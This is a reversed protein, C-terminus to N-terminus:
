PLDNDSYGIEKWTGLGDSIVELVDNVSITRSSAGLELGSGPFSDNDQLSINCAAATSTLVLRQGAPVAITSISPIGYSIMSVVATSTSGCINVFSNAASIIASGVLASSSVAPTVFVRVSASTVAVSNLVASSVALNRFQETSSGLDYARNQGPVTHGYQNVRLSGSSNSPDEGVSWHDGSLGAHAAGALGLVLAATLLKNLHM